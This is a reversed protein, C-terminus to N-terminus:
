LDEEAPRVLNLLEDEAKLLGQFEGVRRQYESMDPCPREVFSDKLEQQKAKLAALLKDVIM